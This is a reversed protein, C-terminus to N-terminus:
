NKKGFVVKYMAILSVIFGSFAALFAITMLTEM